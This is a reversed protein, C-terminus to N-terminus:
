AVGEAALVERLQAADGDREYYADGRGVVVGMREWGRDRLAADLADRCQDRDREAETVREQARQLEAHAGAVSM